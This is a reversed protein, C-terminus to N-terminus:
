FWPSLSLSLCSIGSQVSLPVSFDRFYYHSNAALSMVVVTDDRFSSLFGGTVQFASRMVDKVVDCPADSPFQLVKDGDSTIIHVWVNM